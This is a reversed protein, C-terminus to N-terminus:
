NEGTVKVIEKRSLWTKLCMFHILHVSGLCKCPSILPNFETDEEGFCFRCSNFGLQLEEIKQSKCIQNENVDNFLKEVGEPIM